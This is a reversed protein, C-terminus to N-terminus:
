VALMKNMSQIRISPVSNRISFQLSIYLVAQTYQLMKRAQRLHFDWAFADACCVFQADSWAGAHLVFARM